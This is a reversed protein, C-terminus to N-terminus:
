IRVQAWDRHGISRILEPSATLKNWAFCNADLIAEYTGWVQHALYNSRLYQRVKEVPNLEPAYPPLPLLLINDPVILKQQTAVLQWNRRELDAQLATGGPALL